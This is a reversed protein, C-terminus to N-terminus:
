SAQKCPMCPQPSKAFSAQAWENELTVTPVSVEVSTVEEDMEIEADIAICILGSTYILMSSLLLQFCSSSCADRNLPSSRGRTEEARAEYQEPFAKLLFHHLLNCVQVLMLARTPVNM